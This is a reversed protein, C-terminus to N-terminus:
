NNRHGFAGNERATKRSHCTHCLSQYNDPGANTNDGDIHDVETAAVILGKAKCHRCLPERRLQAPRDRDRWQRSDYTKRDRVRRGEAQKSAQKRHKDCRGSKVLAPCGPHTCPRPAATPM